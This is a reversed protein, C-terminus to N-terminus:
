KKLRQQELQNWLYKLSVSLNGSLSLKTSLPQAMELLNPRQTEGTGTWNLLAQFFNVWMMRDLMRYVFCCYVKLPYLCFKAIGQPYNRRNIFVLYQINVYKWTILICFSMYLALLAM